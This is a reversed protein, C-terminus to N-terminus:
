IQVSLSLIAHFAIQVVYTVRGIAFYRLNVTTSGLGYYFFDSFFFCRSNYYISYFCTAINEQVDHNKDSKVNFNKDIKRREYNWRSGSSTMAFDVFDDGSNGIGMTSTYLAIVWKKKKKSCIFDLKLASSEEILWSNAM